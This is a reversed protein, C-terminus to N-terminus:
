VIPLTPKIKLAFYADITVVILNTRCIKMYVLTGRERERKKKKSVVEWFQTIYNGAGKENEVLSICSMGNNDFSCRQSNYLRNSTFHVLDSVILTIQSENM